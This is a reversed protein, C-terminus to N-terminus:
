QSFLGHQPSPSVKTHRFASSGPVPPTKQFPTQSGGAPTRAPSPSFIPPSAQLVPPPLQSQFGATLHPSRERFAVCSIVLLLLTVVVGIVATVFARNDVGLLDSAPPKPVSTPVASTDAEPKESCLDCTGTGVYSVLVVSEQQTLGSTFAIRVNSFTAQAHHHDAVSIKYVAINDGVSVRQVSLPGSTVAQISSISLLDLTMALAM